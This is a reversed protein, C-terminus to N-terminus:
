GLTIVSRSVRTPITHFALNAKYSFEPTWVMKRPVTFQYRHQYHFNLPESGEVKLWAQALLSRIREAGYGISSM